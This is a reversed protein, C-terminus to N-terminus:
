SREPGPDRLGPVIAAGAVVLGPPLLIVVPLWPYASTTALFGGSVAGAVIATLAGLSRGLGDPATRTALGALVGTLTSTLYTSSMQGLRRVASAQMGMAASLVIVLTVQVGGRPHGQAAEWGACFAALVVLEAALTATVSAPWTGAPESGRRAAIPAAVLVGAAYGVMALGAHIAAASDGNTAAVGLLVLNGTIVSVFVKGLVLFSVANVAGATVTLLVVRSDRVAAHWRGDAARPTRADNTM